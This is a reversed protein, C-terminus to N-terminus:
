IVRRAVFNHNNKVNKRRIVPQQGGLSSNVADSVRTEGVQECLKNQTSSTIM